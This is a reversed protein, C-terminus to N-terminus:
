GYGRHPSENAEGPDGLGFRRRSLDVEGTTLEVRRLLWFADAEFELTLGARRASSALREGEKESVALALSVHPTFPAGNLGPQTATRLPALSEALDAQLTHLRRNQGDDREALFVAAYGNRTRDAVLEIRSLRVAYPMHRAAVAALLATLTAEGTRSVFSPLLTIHWGAAPISAGEAGTAWEDLPQTIADPLVLQVSYSTPAPTAASM